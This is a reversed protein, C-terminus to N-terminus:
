ELVETTMLPLGSEGQDAQWKEHIEPNEDHFGMEIGLALLIWLCGLFSLRTPTFDWIVNDVLFALVAQSYIMYTSRHSIKASLGSAFTFEMLFGIVGMSSLLFWQSVSLAINFVLGPLVNFAVISVLLVIAAFYCVAVLPHAKEGLLRIATISCMGGMAGVIAFCVGISTAGLSSNSSEAAQQFSGFLFEPQAILVVGALSLIGSTIEVLSFRGTSIVAMACCAGMPALFNLITAEGLPLYELSFYFGIVGFCGAIGRTLSLPRLSSKGFPLEEPFNWWLYCTSLLLTILMRVILIQFPHVSSQETELFKAATNMFVSFLQSLLVLLWDKNRDYFSSGSSHAEKSTAAM